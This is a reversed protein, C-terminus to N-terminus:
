NLNLCVYGGRAWPLQVWNRGTHIHIYMYTPWSLRDVWREDVIVGVQRRGGARGQRGFNEGRWGGGGSHPCTKRYRCKLALRRSDVVPVPSRLIVYEVYEMAYM